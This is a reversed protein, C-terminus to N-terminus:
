KPRGYVPDSEGFRVPGPGMNNPAVQEATGHLPSRRDGFSSSCAPIRLAVPARDRRSSSNRLVGPLAVGFPAASGAKRSALSDSLVYGEVFAICPGIPAFGASLFGVDFLVVFFVIMLLLLLSLFSAFVMRFGKLVGCPLDNPGYGTLPRYRWQTDGM